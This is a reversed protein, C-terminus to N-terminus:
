FGWANVMIGITPDFAGESDSYIKESKQFVEIFYPDLVVTTDGSNIRSIDSDPMYTSLSQNVTHILSDLHKEAIESHGPKMTIHFTTGFAMGQIKQYSSSGKESCSLFSLILLVLLSNRLSFM